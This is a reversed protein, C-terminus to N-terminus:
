FGGGIMQHAGETSGVPQGDQDAVARVGVPGVLLRLLQHRQRDEIGKAASWQRHVAVPLLPPFPEVDIIQALSHKRHQSPATQALGVVEARVVAQGVCLRDLADAPQEIIEVRPGIDDSVAGQDGVDGVTRTM